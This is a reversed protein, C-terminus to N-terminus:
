DACTYHSGTDATTTTASSVGVTDFWVSPINITTTGEYYPFVYPYPDCPIYPIYPYPIWNIPEEVPKYYSRKKNNVCSKCKESDIDCCDESYSCKVKVKTEM